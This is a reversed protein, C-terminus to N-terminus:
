PVARGAQARAAPGDIARASVFTIVFSTLLNFIANERTSGERYGARAVEATEVM